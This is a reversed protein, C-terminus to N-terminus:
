GTRASGFRAAWFVKHAEITVFLTLAVGLSVIWQELSIPQVRLVDRLGPTYLAAIHVVQAIATGVFLISNRFPSLSLLSRTESRANGAQINEFLVLLLLVGNRAESLEWGHDIMWQFTVFSLGGVLLASLVTREIMLRDFIPERPSRPPRELEGGEGPEFALAVDQIGNTVLNLWLLQAPFLPLPTGTAVALVFLVLEAAGTSILLFIVKRVNGYAIRGEEVGAVISAFNDDTVILEATERAVDTGRKGMAVGIHAARLAPADNAGDGTVAVFHGLRILSEVIELKQQPEVRAFVRGRRVLADFAQPDAAAERLAAGTVVQEPREAMRLERAIAFATVPHDGTVMAVDIGASRCAEVATKAEPRLPDIMGVLGLFVLGELHTPELTNGQARMGDAVALIRYGAAALANAEREIAAVDIPVDGDPGAMRDCMALVREGAGKVSVRAGDGHRNLSAAYQREAEFPIEALRPRENELVARDIGAKKALVLLAVDVADGHSTWQGDRLALTGDNCLAIAECLRLLRSRVSGGGDGGPIQITGEPTVGEGTVDWPAELPLLVKRATLENVTLTGTKDSAIFTCSGLAEVAALRRVIVRRRSMRKVAVSLAVTLAVPLGEPIISVALAVSMLFLDEFSSGRLGAVLALLVVAVVVSAAIKKTFQEMRVILPPKAAEAGVVATTIRGIQTALGIAVVVGRARGRTAVTGAFAVNVRDAVATERPLVLDSRKAVPLSEGTLLSEDAEFGTASILRLDAPIKAGAEVLVIDGPVLEEADIKREEGARVVQADAPVLARLAAASKEAQYEQFTGIVANVLLVILIFGADYLDGLFFAVWAAALLIYILPSRFQHLFVVLLGPPEAAPLANKGYRERRAAVEAHDLGQPGTDLAAFCDDVARAHADPLGGFSSEPLGPRPTQARSQIRDM